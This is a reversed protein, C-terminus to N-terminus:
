HLRIDYLDEYVPGAPTLDSRKLCVRDVEYSGVSESRHDNIFERMGARDNDPRVRALTVHPMFPRDCNKLVACLEEAMAASTGDDEVGLWVVRANRENPFAGVGRLEARFRNHERLGEMAYRARETDDVDGLFNLTMHLANVCKTGRIGGLEELLERARRDLPFDIAIFCRV